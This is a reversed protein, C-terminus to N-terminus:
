GSASSGHTRSSSASGCLRGVDALTNAREQEFFDPETLLRRFHEVVEKRHAVAVVDTASPDDQLLQRFRDPDRQYVTSVAEPDTFLDRLLQHEVRITEKAGEVPIHELARAFLIFRESAERDLTLLTQMETADPDTPVKQIEICRINGTQRTVQVQIQKRGAPTTAVVFETRDIDPLTSLDEPDDPEDFVMRVYRALHGHDRSERLGLRFSKSAYIRDPRRLRAFDVDNEPESFFGRGVPKLPM